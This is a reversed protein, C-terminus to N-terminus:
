SRSSSGPCHRGSTSTARCASPDPARGRPRDIRVRSSRPRDGLGDLRPAVRRPVARWRRRAPRRRPPRGRLRRRRARPGARSVPSRRSEAKALEIHAMSCPWAADRTANIQARLGPPAKRPRAAERPPPPRPGSPPPGPPTPPAAPPPDATVPGSARRATSPGPGAPPPTREDLATRSSDPRPPPHRRIIGARPLAVSRTVSGACPSRWRGAAQQGGFQQADARLQGDTLGAVRIGALEGAAQGPRRGPRGDSRM